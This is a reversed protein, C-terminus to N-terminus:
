IIIDLFTELVQRNSYTVAVNHLIHLVCKSSYREKGQTEISFNGWLQTPYKPTDSKLSM